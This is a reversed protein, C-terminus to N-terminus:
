DLLGEKGGSGGWGGGLFFSIVFPCLSWSVYNGVVVCYLFQVAGVVVLFGMFVDILKVRQPTTKM